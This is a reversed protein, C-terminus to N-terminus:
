KILNVEYMGSLGKTEMKSGKLEQYNNPTIKYTGQVIIATKTMLAISISCSNSAGDRCITILSKTEVTEEKKKTLDIIEVM